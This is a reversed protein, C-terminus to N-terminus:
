AIIKVTDHDFHTSHLHSTHLTPAPGVNDPDGHNYNMGFGIRFTRFGWYWLQDIFEQNAAIDHAGHINFFYNSDLAEGNVHETSPYCSADEFAMGATTMTLSSNAEYLTQLAGLIGAFLDPNVWRRRTHQWNFKIRVSGRKYDLATIPNPGSVPSHIIDADVLDAITLLDNAYWRWANPTDNLYAAANGGRGEVYTGNEFFRMRIADIKEGAHRQTLFVREAPNLPDGTEIDENWNQRIKGFTTLSITTCIHHENGLADHFYYAVKKKDRDPPPSPLDRVYVNNIRGITEVAEGDRSTIRYPYQPHYIEYVVYNGVRLRASNNYKDNASLFEGSVTPMNLANGFFAPKDDSRKVTIILEGLTDRLGTIGRFADGAQWFPLDGLENRLAIRFIAKDKHNIATYQQTAITGPLSAAGSTRLANFNGVVAELETEDAQTVHNRLPLPDTNGSMLDNGPKVNIKIAKGRCGLTEVVLFIEKGLVTDFDPQQDAPLAMEDDDTRQASSDIREFDIIFESSTIAGAANRVVDIRKVVRKAFYAMVIRPHAHVVTYVAPSWVLKNVKMAREAFDDILNTPGNFYHTLTYRLFDQNEKLKLSDFGLHPWTIFSYEFDKCENKRSCEFLYKVFLATLTIASKPFQAFHYLARTRTKNAALREKSDQIKAPITMLFDDEVTNVTLAQNYVIMGYVKNASTIDNYDPVEFGNGLVDSLLHLPLRSIGATFPGDYETIDAKNILNEVGYNRHKNLDYFVPPTFLHDESTELVNYVIGMVIKMLTNEGTVDVHVPSQNWFITDKQIFDNLHNVMYNTTAPDGDPLVTQNHSFMGAERANWAKVLRHEVSLEKEEAGKKVKCIVKIKDARIFGSAPDVIDTHFELTYRNTKEGTKGIFSPATIKAGNRYVKVEWDISDVTTIDQLFLTYTNKFPFQQNIRLTKPLASIICIKKNALTNNGPSYLDSLDSLPVSPYYQYIAPIDM